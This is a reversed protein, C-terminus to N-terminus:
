IEFIETLRNIAWGTSSECFNREKHGGHHTVTSTPPILKHIHTHAHTHTIYLFRFNSASASHSCFSYLIIKLFGTHELTESSHARCTSVSGV